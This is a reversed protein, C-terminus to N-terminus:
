GEPRHELAPLDDLLACRDDPTSAAPTRVERLRAALIRAAEVVRQGAEVRDDTGLAALLKVSAAPGTAIGNWSGRSKRSSRPSWSSCTFISSCWRPTRM